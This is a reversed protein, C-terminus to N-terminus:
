EANMTQEIINMMIDKSIAGQVYGEINGDPRIMYTTPFASVGYVSFQEGTEDM